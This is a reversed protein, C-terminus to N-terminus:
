KSLSGTFGIANRTIVCLFTCYVVSKKREDCKEVKEISRFSICVRKNCTIPKASSCDHRMWDFCRYLDRWPIVIQKTEIGSFITCYNACAWNWMDPMMTFQLWSMETPSVWSILDDDLTTISGIERDMNSWSERHALSELNAERSSAHSPTIICSHSHPLLPPM